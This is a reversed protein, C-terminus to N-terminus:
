AFRVQKREDDVIVQSVKVWRNVRWIMIEHGAILSSEFEDHLDGATTPTPQVTYIM